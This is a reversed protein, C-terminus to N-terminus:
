VVAALQRNAAYKTSIWGRLEIFAVADVPPSFYYGQGEECREAQLFAVQERTEVGGASVRFNFSNGMGIVASVITADGSVNDINRVFSQDIKLTDVPLQRLFSLSSYGTGFDDIVLQVGMAKLAHLVTLTSEVDQVLVSENLEIELYRPDLGTEMLIDHIDALLDESRFEAASINVAVPIPGRGTIKWAQAQRCAEHGIQVMLGSDEAIAVFQEPCLLGRVPHQWHILAEAGTIAGTQLNVKPQYHLIFEQRALAQLLNGELLKREVARNNSDQKFFQYNNGGNKRAHHMAADAHKLLIEASEGDDPFVSIGISLTINIDHENICHKEALAVLIKAARCGAGM